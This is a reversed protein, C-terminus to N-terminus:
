RGNGAFVVKFTKLIIYIDFLISMHKIYYLDYRLKELSDEISSGYPYCVQAWGTLGPKVYHRESYYPISKKLENIFEPREPRPGVVSMEGWLINFLQPIEDLRTKRLFNGVCTIRPDNQQSWVAGTRSEADQYMSRFKMLRFSRDGRGVRTQRFLVPGPSDLKIALCIFPVLPMFVLLGSLSAAVDLIRKGLRLLWTVKFGQGFIFWSPTINEILLKRTALEFFSPADVVDIGHLKCSLLDDVPFVGRREGLSVVIQDAMFNQALRLLGSKDEVAASGGDGDPACERAPCSVWGLLTLDRRHLKIYEEVLRAQAGGGVILIRKGLGLFARRFKAFLFEAVKFGSFVCFGLLAIQEDGATMRSPSLLAHFLAMSILTVCIQCLIASPIRLRLHRLGCYTWVIVSPLIALVLFGGAEPLLTNNLIVKLPPALVALSTALALVAWVIDSALNRLVLDAM